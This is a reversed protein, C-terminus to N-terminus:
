KCKANKGEKWIRKFRRSTLLKRFDLGKVIVECHM